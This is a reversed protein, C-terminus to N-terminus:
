TTFGLHQFHHTPGFKKSEFRHGQISGLVWPHSTVASMNQGSASGRSTCAYGALTAQTSSVSGYADDIALDTKSTITLM